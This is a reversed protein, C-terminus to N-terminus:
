RGTGVRGPFGGFDWGRCRWRAGQEGSDELPAPFQPPPSTMAYCLDSFTVLEGLRLRTVPMFGSVLLGLAGAFIVVYAITPLPAFPILPAALRLAAGSALMGVSVRLSHNVSRVAPMRGPALRSIGQTFVWTHRELMPALKSEPRLGKVEVGADELILRMTEFAAAQWDPTASEDEVEIAPALAHEAILDCVPGIPRQGKPDLMARWTDAEIALDFMNNLLVAIDSWDDALRPLGMLNAAKEVPTGRKLPIEYQVNPDIGERQRWVDIMVQLVEDSTM